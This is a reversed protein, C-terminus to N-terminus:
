REKSKFLKQVNKIYFGMSNDFNTKTIINNKEIIIKEFDRKSQIYVMEEREILKKDITALKGGQFISYVPINLAAAERNITGGAGIILDSLSILEIGNYTKSPVIVNKLKLNEYENKQDNTRPLVIIIPKQEHKNLFKILDMSLDNVNSQYHAMTAEPRFLIVIRNLPVKLEKKIAETNRKLKVFDSVYHNIYIQEKLGDYYVTNDPTSGYKKILKEDVGRPTLVIDSFRYSIHHGITYEYDYLTMHPIDLMASSIMATFSSMSLSADVNEKRIFWYLKWTRDFMGGIKKIKSKGKHDGILAHEIDFEKLLDTTQAYERATVLVDINNEKLELIVPNFLIAHPSNTVDIWVKKKLFSKQTLESYALILLIVLYISVSPASIVHGAVISVSAGLFIAFMIANLKVNKFNRKFNSFYKYLLVIILYGPLILMLVFGLIGYSFFLDFLDMEVSRAIYGDTDKEYYGIGLFKNTIPAKKFSKFKHKLLNNRGSFIVQEMDVIEIVQGYEDVIQEYTVNSVHKSVNQGIPSYPYWFYILILIFTLPFMKSKIISKQKQYIEVIGYYSVFIIVSFLIGLFPVKTGINMCVITYIAILSFGLIKNKLNLVYFVFLPAVVSLISGIENASFFWGTTGLKYGAYSDFATRTIMPFFLLLLYVITPYIIDKYNLFSKSKKLSHLYLFFLVFVAYFMKVVYKIEHLSVILGKDVIASLIYTILYIILSLFLFFLKKEKYIKLKFITFFIVFLLFAIRTLIGLTIFSDSFRAFLSTAVDIIPQLWIFFITWKIYLQNQNNETIKM